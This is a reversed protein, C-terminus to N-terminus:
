YDTNPDASDPVEEDSGRLLTREAYTGDNELEKIADKLARVEKPITRSIEILTSILDLAEQAQTKTLGANTDMITTISGRVKKVINGYYKFSKLLEGIVENVVSLKSDRYDEIGKLVVSDPKWRDPFSIKSLIFNHAEKGELGKKFIPSEPDAMFWIYALERHALDKTKDRKIIERFSDYSLLEITNVVLKGDENIKFINISTSM